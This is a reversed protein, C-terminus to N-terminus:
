TCVYPSLLNLPTMNTGSTAEVQNHIDAQEGSAAPPLASNEEVELCPIGKMMNAQAEQLIKEFEKGDYHGM